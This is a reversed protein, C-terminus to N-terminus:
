EPFNLKIEGGFGHKMLKNIRKRTLPDAQKTTEVDFTRTKADVSVGKKKIRCALNYRQKAKKTSKYKKKTQVPKAQVLSDTPFLTPNKM